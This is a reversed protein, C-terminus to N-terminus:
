YSSKPKYNAYKKPATVQRVYNKVEEKSKSKAIAWAYAESCNDGFEHLMKNLAYIADDPNTFVNNACKNCRDEVDDMWEKNCLTVGFGTGGNELMAELYWYPELTPLSKAPEGNRFRSMVMLSEIPEQGKVKYEYWDIIKVKKNQSM